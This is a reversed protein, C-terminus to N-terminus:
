SHFHERASAANLGDHVDVGGNTARIKEALEESVVKAEEYDRIRPSGQHTKSARLSTIAAETSVQQLSVQTPRLVQQSVDKSLDTVRKLEQEPREKGVLGQIVKLTM